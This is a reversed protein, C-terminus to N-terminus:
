MYKFVPLQSKDIPVGLFENKITYEYTVSLM